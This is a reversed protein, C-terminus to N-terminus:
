HISGGVHKTRLFGNRNEKQRAESHTPPSEKGAEGAPKVSGDWKDITEGDYVGSSPRVPWPSETLNRLTLLCVIWVYLTFSVEGPWKM